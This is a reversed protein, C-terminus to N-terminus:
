KSQKPPKTQKRNTDSISDEKKLSSEKAKKIQSPMFCGLRPHSYGQLKGLQQLQQRDINIM